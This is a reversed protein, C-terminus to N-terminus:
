VSFWIYLLGALGVLTYIGYEIMSNGKTLVAIINFNKGLFGGIGVMGWQLAGLCTLIFSVSYLTNKM